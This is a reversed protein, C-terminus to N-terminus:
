NELKNEMPDIGSFLVEGSETIIVEAPPIKQFDEVKYYDTLFHMEKNSSGRLDRAVRQAAVYRGAILVDINTLITEHGPMRKIEALTFGSFLIVPLKSRQRWLRLFEGLVTAQQLPEGGTITIGAIDTLSVIKELLAQPPIFSGGAVPHTEPNFCEPCGLTCGQVWIVARRGPGNAYSAPLLRHLHLQKENGTMERKLKAGRRKLKTAFLRISHKM